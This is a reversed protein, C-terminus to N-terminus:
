RSRRRTPRRLRLATRGAGELAQIEGVFIGHMQRAPETARRRRVGPRAPPGPRRRQSARRCLAGRHHHPQLSQRAAVRVAAVAQAHRSRLRIAPGPRCRAIATAARAHNRAHTDGVCEFLAPMSHGAAGTDRRHADGLCHRRSGSTVSIPTAPRCAWTGLSGHDGAIGIACRGTPPGSSYSRHSRRPHGFTSRAVPGISTAWAVVTIGHAVSAGITTVTCSKANRCSGDCNVRRPLLM